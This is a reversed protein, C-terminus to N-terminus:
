DVDFSKGEFTDGNERVYKKMLLRWLDQVDQTGDMDLFCTFDTDISECSRTTCTECKDINLM